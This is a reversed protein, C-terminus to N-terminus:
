ASETSASWAPLVARIATGFEEMAASLAAQDATNATAAQMVHETATRIRADPHRMLPVAAAALRGLEVKLGSVATKGQL